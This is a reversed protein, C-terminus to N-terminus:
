KYFENINIKTSPLRITVLTGEISYKDGLKYLLTKGNNIFIAGNNSAIFLKGGNRSFAKVISNLGWGRHNFEDKTSVGNVAQKIADADNEFDLGFKSFSGPISIGDDLFCAETFRKQPFKQAFLHASTFDAHQYINDTLETLLYEFSGYWGKDPDVIKLIDTIQSGADDSSPPLERYPIYTKDSRRSPNLMRQAYGVIGSDLKANYEKNSLIFKLTPLLLTPYIFGIHRLDLFNDKMESKAECFHLYSRVIEHYM